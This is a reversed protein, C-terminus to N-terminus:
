RVQWTSEKGAIDTTKLKGGSGDSRACVADDVTEGTDAARIDLTDQDIGIIDGIKQDKEPEARQIVGTTIFRVDKMDDTETEPEESGISYFNYWEYIYYREKGKITVGFQDTGFRSELTHVGNPLSAHYDHEQKAETRYEGGVVLQDYPVEVGKQTVPICHSSKCPETTYGSQSRDLKLCNSHARNHSCVEECESAKNCIVKVEHNEKRPDPEVSEWTGLLRKKYEDEPYIAKLRKFEQERLWKDLAEQAATQTPMWGEGEIGSHWGAESRGTSQHLYRGKADKIIWCDEMHLYVQWGKECECPLTPCVRGDGITTCRGDSGIDPCDACRIDKLEKDCAECKSMEAEQEM